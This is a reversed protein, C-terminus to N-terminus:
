NIKRLEMSVTLEIRKRLEQFASIQKEFQRLDQQYVNFEMMFAQRDFIGESVPAPTQSGEEVSTEETNPKTTFDKRNPPTPEPLPRRRGFIYDEMRSAYVQAEFQRNWEKWNTVDKLITVQSTTTSM